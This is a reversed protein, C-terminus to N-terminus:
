HEQLSMGLLPKSPQQTFFFLSGSLTISVKLEEAMLKRDDWSQIRPM